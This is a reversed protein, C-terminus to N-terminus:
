EAIKLRFQEDQPIAIIKAISRMANITRGHHGIIRGIDESHASIYYYVVGTGTEEREIKVQDPHDVLHLILFELLHKM